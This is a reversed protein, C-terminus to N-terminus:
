THARPMAAAVSQTGPRLTYSVPIQAAADARTQLTTGWAEADNLRTNICPMVDPCHMGFIFLADKFEKVAAYTRMNECNIIELKRALDPDDPREITLALQVAEWPVRYRTALQTLVVVYGGGGDVSAGVGASAAADSPRFEVIASNMFRLLKRPGQVTEYHSPVVYYDPLLPASAADGVRFLPNMVRVVYLHNQALAGYSKKYFVLCQGLDRHGVYAPVGKVAIFGNEKITRVDGIKEIGLTALQVHSPVYHQVHPQAAAADHSAAGGM